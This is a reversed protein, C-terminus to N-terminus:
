ALASPLSEMFERVAAIDAHSSMFTFDTPSITRYRQKVAGLAVHLVPCEAILGVLGAWAPADLALVVDLSERVRWPEGDALHRILDRRLRDLGLQTDRDACVIGGLVEILRRSAYTCVDRQLITWGVQFATVPDRDPWHSPWNEV